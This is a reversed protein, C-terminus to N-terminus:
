TKITLDGGMGEPMPPIKEGGLVYGGDLRLTTGTMFVADKILFLVTKVLDEAKGTRGLLTHDIIEQQQTRDLLPWGKTQQAHRHEFFGLMIENVRLHPAGQRAWTETLANVARNAAAYGDNFLLGAPGTRGTIAAISSIVLMVAEPQKQLHPLSEQFVNWKAKLTTTMELDWQEKTYPGHVIPMGGREINNIVIDLNGYREIAQSLLNKVEEEERLDVPLALYDFDLRSFEQRMEEVSDPWDYYPLILRAGAHGLALAVARGLGRSAGLVLATKGSIEM